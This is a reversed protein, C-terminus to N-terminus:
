YNRPPSFTQQPATFNQQPYQQQQPAQRQGANGSRTDLFEMSRVIVETTYRKNGDKDDWSRTKNKGEVYIHSGKKLYQGALQAQKNWFVLNHYETEEKRNGSKDTYKENTALTCSAVDSNGAKRMEVDRTLRGILMTKSLSM